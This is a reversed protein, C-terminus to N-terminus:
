CVGTFEVTKIFIAEVHDNVPANDKAQGNDDREDLHEKKKSDEVVLSGNMQVLFAHM